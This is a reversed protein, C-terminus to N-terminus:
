GVTLTGVLESLRVIWRFLKKLYGPKNTAMRNPDLSERVCADGIMTVHAYWVPLFAHKRAQSEQQELKVRWM